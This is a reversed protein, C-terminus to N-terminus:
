RLTLLFVVLVLRIISAKLLWTLKRIIIWKVMYSFCLLLSLENIVWYDPRGRRWAMRVAADFFKGCSQIFDRAEKLIVVHLLGIRYM